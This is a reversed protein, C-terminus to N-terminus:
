GHRVFAGHLTEAAMHRACIADTKDMYYGFHHKKGGLSVYAEWRQRRGVWSVGKVGSTNDKRTRANCLNQAPTAKRLNDRRNDLGNSNVHDTQAGKAPQMLMRHLSMVTGRINTKAYIRKGGHQILTSWSCSELVGKDAVDTYTVFGRTLVNWAHNGCACTHVPRKNVVDDRMTGFGTTITEHEMARLRQVICRVTCRHFLCVM